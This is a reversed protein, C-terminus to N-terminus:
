KPRVSDRLRALLEDRDANLVETKTAEGDNVIQLAEAKTAAEIKAEAPTPTGRVVQRTAMVYLAFAATILLGLLILLAAIV